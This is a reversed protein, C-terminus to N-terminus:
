SDSRGRKLKELNEKPLAFEPFLTLSKIFNTKAEATNGQQFKISGLMNYAAAVLPVQQQQSNNSFGIILETETAKPDAIVKSVTSEAEDFKQMYFQCVGVQYMAEPNSGLIAVRSFFPLAMDFRGIAQYARASVEVMKLNNTDHELVHQAAQIAQPYNNSQFYLTSLTDYYKYQSTDRSLLSHIAYTATGIDGFKIAQHYIRIDQENELKANDQKCSFVFAYLLLFLLFKFNKM